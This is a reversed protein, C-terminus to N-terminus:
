FFSEDYYVNEKGKDKKSSSADSGKKKLNEIFQKLSQPKKKIEEEDEPIPLPLDPPSTKSKELTSDRQIRKFFADDDEDDSQTTVLDDRSSFELPKNVLTVTKPGSDVEETEFELSADNSIDEVQLEPFLEEDVLTPAKSLPYLNDFSKLSGLSESKKLQNLSESKKIGPKEYKKKFDLFETQLSEYKKQCDNLSDLVYLYQNSLNSISAKYGSVLRRLTKIEENEM